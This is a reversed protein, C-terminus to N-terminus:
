FAGTHERYADCGECLEGAKEVQNQGCGGCIGAAPPAVPLVTWFKADDLEATFDADMCVWQFGDYDTGEQTEVKRGDEWWAECWGSALKILVPEGDFPAGEPLVINGKADFDYSIAAIEASAQSRPAADDTTNRQIM